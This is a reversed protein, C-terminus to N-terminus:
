GHCRGGPDVQCGSEAENMLTFAPASGPLNRGDPDIMCGEKTPVSSSGTICRGNPDINCSEKTICQGNPDINCGAKTRGGQIIRWAINLVDTIGVGSLGASSSRHRPAASAWSAILFLLAALVVTKRFPSASRM